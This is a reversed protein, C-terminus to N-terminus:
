TSVILKADENIQVVGPSKGKAFSGLKESVALAKAGNSTAWKLITELAIDPFHKQITQIENWINLSDNSALSDTGIVIHANQAILMEIPPNTDEIYLNANICICYNVDKAFQVDEMDTFTNHVAIVKHNNFYPLWTQLSSKHSPTFSNIEIGLNNYLHLMDGSGTLYLDNEAKTEQNHISITKQKSHGSIIEFLKKIVESLLRM